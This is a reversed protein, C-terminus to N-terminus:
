QDTISLLGSSKALNRLLRIRPHGVQLPDLQMRSILDEGSLVITNKTVPVMPRFLDLTVWRQPKIDLEDALVTGGPLSVLDRPHSKRNNGFALM